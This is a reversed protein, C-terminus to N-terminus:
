GGYLAELRQGYEARLVHRRVKMTPTMQDNDVTFPEPAIMFRRVKEIQGLKANVRGLADSVAKRLDPDEALAPLDGEKGSKAKWRGLWEEDPVILAVLHPRKDGYVMAQGIEPELCLLGEIRQPSINDGGSNVIIDKKRDTIQICGYEDIVGVDGTHLWGDADIAARTAKENNWYGKMVNGGRVLIEGDGAIHVEVDRIPPGVTHMRVRGPVNCSIVPSSETQGYGQLIPVGLSHFFLGVEVNLPGGGAVMAKLRGGFRKRVKGRVLRDLVADVVRDKLTLRDPHHYRKLGLEHTRWFLKRKGESQSDLGRLVRTRMTEYLRPVATMITPRAEQMNTALKDLGEAFWVQAGISIPFHLGAAHEYSHSLPLFSLFVEKGLGIGKLLAYAGRCNHLINAHSLMVGKPTGGTGSTYIIACLDDPEIASVTPPRPRGRYRTVLDDWALVDLGTNQHRPLPEIAIIVPTEHAQSAAELARPALKATSVIFAKAGSDDLVHLHDAVTNTVYCPAVVAGAMLIALDAIIWEPRNESVLSVRDGPEIGHDRLANALAVARVEVEAWTLPTYTGDVKRWLMPERAFRRAQNLFVGVLDTERDFDAARSRSFLM